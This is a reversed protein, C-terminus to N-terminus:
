NGGAARSRWRKLQDAPVQADARQWAKEAESIAADPQAGATLTRLPPVLAGLAAARDPGRLGLTPNRVSVGAFTRLADQLARTREADLGYPLWVALRDRELHAGRTPGANLGPAAVLEASRAPGALEALLEFAAAQSTCRSRVVALRGGAVHPVFNPPGDILKQQRQDFYTTAGPVAAIGFRPAVADGEKPLRAVEDLSLLAFTARGEALATVQDPATGPPLAGGASLRAFMHAATRFGPAGIRPAGTTASYHFALAERDIVGDGEADSLAKRDFCAAARSFLDLLQAGDAPLPPLSPRKDLEAFMLAQAALSEWSDPPSPARGPGFKKGIADRVAPEAYRDRRYVLVASDGTLPLAVTENGWNVLREGCVPLLDRWQFAADSRLAPPVPALRGADAWAGLETTPIVGIDAVDEATMPAASLTVKAGTRAEWSRVMPALARALAADPCSATLAVGEHARKPASFGTPGYPGCGTQTACFLLLATFARRFTHPNHPIPPVPRQM